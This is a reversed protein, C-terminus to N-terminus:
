ADTAGQEERTVRQEIAELIWQNRSVKALRTARLVDVKEWLAMPLRLAMTQKDGAHSPTRAARGGKEVFSRFEASQELPKPKENIAM